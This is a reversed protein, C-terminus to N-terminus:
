YTLTFTNSVSSQLPCLLVCTCVCVGCVCVCVCVCVRPLLSTSIKLGVEAEKTCVDGGVM